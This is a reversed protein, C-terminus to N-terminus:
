NDTICNRQPGYAESQLFTLVSILLHFNVDLSFNSKWGSTIFRSTILSKNISKVNKEWKILILPLHKRKGKKEKKGKEQM